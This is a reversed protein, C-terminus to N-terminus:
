TLQNFIEENNMAVSIVKTLYKLSIKHHEEDYSDICDTPLIVDFDRQYADICTMRICAHTNVGGIILTDINLRELLGDLTTKFFASYRKKVIEYDNPEVRLEPLLQSGRTNEITIRRKTKRMGLFADSLDEKFEQRVWIIPINQSRGFSVLENINETLKKRHNKLRGEQFFDQLVDMM